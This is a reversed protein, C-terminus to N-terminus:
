LGLIPDLRTVCVPKEEGYAPLYALRDGAVRAESAAGNRLVLREGSVVSQAVVQQSALEGAVTLGIAEFVLYRHDPTFTFAYESDTPRAVHYLGSPLRVPFTMEELVEAGVEPYRALEDERFPILDIGSPTARVWVAHRRQIGEPPPEVTAALGDPTGVLLVGNPVTGLLRANGDSSVLIVQEERDYAPSGLPAAALYTVNGLDDVALRFANVDAGSAVVALHGTATDLTRITSEVYNRESAIALWAGHPSLAIAEIREGPFSTCLETAVSGTTLPATFRWGVLLTALIAALLAGTPRNVVARWRATRILAAWAAAAPLTLPWATASFFLALLVFPPVPLVSAAVAAPVLVGYLLALMFAVGVDARVIRPALYAGFLTAYGLGLLLLVPTTALPGALDLYRAAVIAVGAALLASGGGALRTATLDRDM